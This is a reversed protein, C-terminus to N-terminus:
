GCYDGQCTATKFGAPFAGATMSFAEQISMLGTFDIFLTAQHSSRLVQFITLISYISRQEM